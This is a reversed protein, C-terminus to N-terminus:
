ALDGMWHIDNGQSDYLTLGGNTTSDYGARIRLNSTTKTSSGSQRSNTDVTTNGYFYLACSYNVNNFASTYVPTYDGTGNDTLSSINLSDRAAPTGQGNFNIWAKASGNVVYSTDLSGATSHELTDAKIKGLAM